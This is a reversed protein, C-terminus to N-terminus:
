FLTSQINTSSKLNILREVEKTLNSSNLDSVGQEKLLERNLDFMPNKIDIDKSYMVARPIGYDIAFKMALRAGSDLKQGILGWRDASDKAYSSALVIVDCFLAQLRDREKYRSSLEMKSKFDYWYETVLLGGNDIIRQALGKNTGPMINNLPSPLFAITKGNADLTQKHAISDCGLALGSVITAGKNVFSAVIERERKEIADTPKLLGIVTIKKNHLSLLCIDGKYFLVVPKESDKVTGRHQPFNDDGLAIIGDCFSAQSLILNRYQERRDEFEKISTIPKKNNLLLVITEVNEGGKLNKVLWAKGIGKYSNTTLINLANETYKM